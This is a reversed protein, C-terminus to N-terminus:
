YQGGGEGWPARAIPSATAGVLRRPAMVVPFVAPGAAALHELVLTEIIPVGYDVLLIKHGPLESLGKGAPIHEFAITDSGVVKVGLSCLWDIAEVGPGPM